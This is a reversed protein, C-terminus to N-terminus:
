WEWREVTSIAIRSKCFIFQLFWAIFDPSTLAEEEGESNGSLWYYEEYDDERGQRSAAAQQENSDNDESV